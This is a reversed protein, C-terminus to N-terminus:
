FGGDIRVAPRSQRIGSRLFIVAEPRLLPKNMMSLCSMISLGAHSASEGVARHTHSSTIRRKLPIFLPLMGSEHRSTERRSPIDFSVATLAKLARMVAPKIRTPFLEEKSRLVLVELSHIRVWSLWLPLDGVASQRLHGSLFWPVSGLVGCDSLSSPSKTVSYFNGKM